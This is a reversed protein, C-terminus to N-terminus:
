TKICLYIKEHGVREGGAGDCEDEGINFATGFEYLFMGLCPLAKAFTVIINQPRCIFRMVSIDKLDDTIYEACCKMSSTIRQAAHLPGHGSPM